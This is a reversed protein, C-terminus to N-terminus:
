RPQLWEPRDGEPLNDKRTAIIYTDGDVVREEVEYYPTLFTQWDDRWLRKVDDPKTMTRFALVGGPAVMRAVSVIDPFDEGREEASRSWLSPHFSFDETDVLVAHWTPQSWEIPSQESEPRETMAKEAANCVSVTIAGIAGWFNWLGIMGIHVGAAHKLAGLVLRFGTRNLDAFGGELGKYNPDRKDYKEAFNHDPVFAMEHGANYGKVVLRDDGVVLVRKRFVGVLPAHMLSELVDM